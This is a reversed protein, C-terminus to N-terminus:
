KEFVVLVVIFHFSLDGVAEVPEPIKISSHTGGLLIERTEADFEELLNPGRMSVKRSHQSATWKSRISGGGGGDDKNGLVFISNKRSRTDKLSNESSKNSKDRQHSRHNCCGANENRHGCKTTSKSSTVANSARVDCRECASSSPKASLSSSKNHHSSEFSCQKRGSHLVNESGGKPSDNRGLCQLLNTTNENREKDLSFYRKKEFNYKGQTSTLGGCKVCYTNEASASQQHSKVSLAYLTKYDADFSLQDCNSSKQLSRGNRKVSIGAGLTTTAPAAATPSPAGSANPTSVHSSIITPVNSIVNHRNRNPEKADKAEGSGSGCSPNRPPSKPMGIIVSGSSDQSSHKRDDDDDVDDELSGLKACCDNCINEYSSSECQTLLIDLKRIDSLEICSNTPLNTDSMIDFSNQKNPPQRVCNM